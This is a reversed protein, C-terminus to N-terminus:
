REQILCTHSPASALADKQRERARLKSVRKYRERRESEDNGGERLRWCDFTAGRSLRNTLLELCPHLSVVPISAVPRRWDCRAQRDNVLYNRLGEGLRSHEALACRMLEALLQLMAVLWLWLLKRM